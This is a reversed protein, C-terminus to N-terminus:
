KTEIGGHRSAHKRGVERTVRLRKQKKRDDRQGRRQLSHFRLGQAEGKENDLYVETAEKAKETM